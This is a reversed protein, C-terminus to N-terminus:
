RIPASRTMDFFSAINFALDLLHGVPSNANTQRRLMPEAMDFNTTRLTTSHVPHSSFHWLRQSLGAQDVNHWRRTARNM